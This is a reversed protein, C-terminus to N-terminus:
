TKIANTNATEKLTRRNQHLNQGVPMETAERLLNLRKRKIGRRRNFLFPTFHVLHPMQLRTQGVWTVSTYSFFSPTMSVDM